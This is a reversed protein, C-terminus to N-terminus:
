RTSCGSPCIVLLIIQVKPTTYRDTLKSGSGVGEREREREREGRERERGKERGGEGEREKEVKCVIVGQVGEGM